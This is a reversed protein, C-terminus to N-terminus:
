FIKPEIVQRFEKEISKMRKCIALNSNEKVAETFRTTNQQVVHKLLNFEHLYSHNIDHMEKIEVNM